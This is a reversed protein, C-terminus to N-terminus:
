VAAVVARRAKAYGGAGANKQPDWKGVNSSPDKHLQTFATAYRALSAATAGPSAGGLIHEINKVYTSFEQIM